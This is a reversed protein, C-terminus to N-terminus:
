KLILPIDSYHKIRDMPFTHDDLSFLIDIKWLGHLRFPNSSKVWSPEFALYLWLPRRFFHSINSHNRDFSSPLVISSSPAPIPVVLFALFIFICIGSSQGHHCAPTKLISIPQIALYWYNIRWIRSFKFSFTSLLSAM